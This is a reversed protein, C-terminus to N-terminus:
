DSTPWHQHSSTSEGTTASAATALTLASLVGSLKMIITTKHNLPPSPTTLTTFTTSSSSSLTPTSILIICFLSGYRRTNFTEKYKVTWVM